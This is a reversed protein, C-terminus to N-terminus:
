NSPCFTRLLVARVENLVSQVTVALTADANLPQSLNFSEAEAAQVADGGEHTGLVLVIRWRFKHRALGM